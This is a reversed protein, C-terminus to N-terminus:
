SEHGRIRREARQTEVTAYDLDDQTGINILDNSGYKNTTLIDPHFYYILKKLYETNSCDVNVTVNCPMFTAQVMGHGDLIAPIADVLCNSGNPSRLKVICETTTYAMKMVFVDIGSVTIKQKTAEPVYMRRLECPFVRLLETQDNNDTKFSVYHGEMTYLFPTISICSKPAYKDIISQSMSEM